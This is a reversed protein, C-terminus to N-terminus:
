DPPICHFTVRQTQADMPVRQTPSNMTVRQTLSDMTVRQTSVDTTFDQAGAKNKSSAKIVAEEKTSEALHCTKMMTPSTHEVEKIAKEETEQCEEEVAAKNTAKKAVIKIKLTAQVEELRKEEAAKKEAATEQKAKLQLALILRENEIAQKKLQIQQVAIVAEEALQKM